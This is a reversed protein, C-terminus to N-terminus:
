DLVEDPALGWLAERLVWGRTGDLNLRCWVPACEVIRAVVGQELLAVEPANDMPRSRLPAMDQTVLVTRVGSLQSYHVWGGFGESDEIRRWHEFEGTVRVPLGRASYVWDLRHTRSPGRRAEARASKLSVFRPLPLGSEPGIPPIAAPPPPVSALAVPAPVQAAGPQVAGSTGLALVLGATLLWARM